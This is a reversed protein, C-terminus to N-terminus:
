PLGAAHEGTLRRKRYEGPSYGTSKKFMRNFSTINRYGVTSGIEQINLNSGTLLEVAKRIRIDNLHDSFNRGTKEKIYVSLYASTLNLAEATADLSIDEGYRTNLTEMVFTIVSDGEEKRELIMASVQWLLAVFSEKYEEITCCEKVQRVLPKLTWSVSKPIKYMEMFQWVKWAISDAFWAFQSVSAERALMEELFRHVLAIAGGSDGAQMYANLQQDRDPDLTFTSTLARSELLIQTREELKAQQVLELVQRYAYNMQTSHEFLASVTVTVICRSRNADFSEGLRELLPMLALRDADRIVTCIQVTEMQFTHANWDRDAFMRDISEIILQTLHDQQWPSQESERLSTRFRLNFLVLVFNTADEAGRETSGNLGHNISKLQDIYRYRALLSEKTSLKREVDGKASLLDAIKNQIFAFEAFRGAQGTLRDEALSDLFDQVPRRIRRQYYALGAACVGLSLTFLMGIFVTLRRAQGYLHGASAVTMYIMGKEDRHRFYYYDGARMYPEDGEFEPLESPTDMVLDPSSRYLVEGSDDMLIFTQKTNGGFYADHMKGIDLFAAIMESRGPKKYTIPLLEKGYDPYPASGFSVAPLFTFNAASEAFKHWYDYGYREGVPYVESWFLRVPSTGGKDLAMDDRNLNLQVVLNDVYMRPDSTEDRLASLLNKAASYDRKETASQAMQARFSSLDPREYTKLLLMKVQQFLAHYREAANSLMQQNGRVLEDTYATRFLSFALWTLSSFIVIVATFGILFLKLLSPFTQNDRKM